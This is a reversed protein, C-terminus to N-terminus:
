LTIVTFEGSLPDLAEMLEPILDEGFELYFQAFNTNREQLSQMPFIDNQLDVLRQVHDSLKRKQARLLRSELNDLGKLQKVEQAKVAGIFSKDTEEAILQMARFQEKLFSRQTSFDIEINSISRIKRNILENQKLFLNPLSVGLNEAKTRQKETRILASNRLLLVPFPVQVEDFYSKLQFWYALEGGGGIYCLNPLIVEQFIPRLLANPSFREPYNELEKLIESESFQLDTDNVVYMGDLKIIRERLGKKIYFLNIERPHVQEPYGFSTLEKTQTTIKDHSVNEVLERKVYPIFLRKLHCDNGDIIVLGQNGFLENGLYRTADALNDHKLYANEFLSVLSEASHSTGLQEKFLELVEELGETSLEGVPGGDERSWQVKRGEFNFYNIEDFDHDETAMWYVPIYHRATDQESLEKCLNIVSIIKYLFYLPGTFLNLQHGTTITFSNSESLRELNLATADSINIDYYQKKLSSVLVDRSEQSYHREKDAAQSQLSAVSPFRHYFPNLEKKQDLYDCILPSFYGTDRYSLSDTPM